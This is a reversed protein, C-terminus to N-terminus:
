IAGNRTIYVQTRQRFKNRHYWRLLKSEANRGTVPQTTHSCESMFRSFDGREAYSELLPIFIHPPPPTEDYNSPIEDDVKHSPDHFSHPGLGGQLVVVSWNTVRYQAPQHKSPKVPAPLGSHVLLLNAAWVPIKVTNSTVRNKLELAFHSRPINDNRVPLYDWQGEDHSVFHLDCSALNKTYHLEGENWQQVNAPAMGKLVKTFPAVRTKKWLAQKGEDEKKGCFLQDLKVFKGPQCPRLANVLDDCHEENM